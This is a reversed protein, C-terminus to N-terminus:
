APAEWATNNVNYWGAAALNGYLAVGYLAVGYLSSTDKGTWVTNKLTSFPSSNKTEFQTNNPSQWQSM